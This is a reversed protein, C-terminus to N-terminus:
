SMFSVAGQVFPRCVRASNVSSLRKKKFASVTPSGKGSSQWCSRTKNSRVSRLITLRACSDNSGTAFSSPWIVM